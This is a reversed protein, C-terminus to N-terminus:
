PTSPSPCSGPCSSLHIRARHGRRARGRGAAAGGRHALRLRPHPPVAGGALDRARRPPHRAHRNRHLRPQARDRGGAAGRADGLAGAPAPVQLRREREPRSQARRVGVARGQARRHGHRPPRRSLDAARRHPHPSRLPDESAGRRLGRASPALAQEVEARFVPDETRLTPHSFILHFASPQKPLEREILDAARGSETSRPIPNNDFEGGRHILWAAPLLSLLSLLWSPSETGTSSAVGPTSCKVSRCRARAGADEVARLVLAGAHRGPMAARVRDPPPEGGREARVGRLPRTGLTRAAMRWFDGRYSSRVGLRWFLRAFIGMGRQVNHPALRRLDMPYWPRNRFTHRQQHAYRGYIARPEYAAAICKKWMGLVTDYPLLFDVNSERGEETRIRGTRELRDWLPTKPLAYLVNITLIPIRSAKIFEIIRDASDPTDTDLGIIIGSVVEM